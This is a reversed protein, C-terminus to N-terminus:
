PRGTDSEVRIIHKYALHSHRYGSNKDAGVPQIIRGNHLVRRRMIIAKKNITTVTNSREDHKEYVYRYRLKYVCAHLPCLLLIFEITLSKIQVINQTKM